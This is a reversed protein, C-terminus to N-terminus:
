ANGEAATTAEAGRFHGISLGSVFRGVGQLGRGQRAYVKHQVGGAPELTAQRHTIFFKNHIAILGAHNAHQEVTDVERFISLGHASKLLTAGSLM